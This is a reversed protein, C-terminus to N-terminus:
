RIREEETKKGFLTFASILLGVISLIAGLPNATM